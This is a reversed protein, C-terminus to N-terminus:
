RTLEEFIKLNEEIKKMSSKWFEDKTVDIGVGLAIEEVKGKGTSSLLRKYREYFNPEKSLSYVGLAFLYGFTYPFNYFHFTPSYYHPKVVWAYPHLHNSDLADGYAKKQAEVMLQSIEKASLPGSKRREFFEKEFWYRSYIDILLQASDSLEKEVISIKEEKSLPERKLYEMVLTENFISATEALVMPTISNLPSVDKLCENHFAHGLEHALTLVNDLHGEFTMLIRSEKLAKVSSCFAGGRKGKRAQADIWKKEFALKTFNALEESFNSLKEVIFKQADEFTWKRDFSGMPAFLEYWPLGNEYGLVKAKLKLYERLKPLFEEVNRMMTEFTLLSLRNELLMPELPSNFKRLSIETLFEAKINNLSFAVLESASECAKIESEYANKRVEQRPDYALNRVVMLPLVKKEGDIEVECTINSTVKSFLQNWGDGGTIRMMSIIKEENYNLLYKAREKMEELVFKHSLILEDKVNELSVNSLFKMFRIRASSLAVFKERVVTSYKAALENNTNEALKLNSYVMLKGALLSLENLTEVSYRIKEEFKETTSFNEDQWKLFSEVKDQLLLLDKRFEESEFSPYINDLEWKM